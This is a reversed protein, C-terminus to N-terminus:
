LVYFIIALDTLYNKFTNKPLDAANLLPIASYFGTERIRCWHFAGPISEQIKKNVYDLEPM